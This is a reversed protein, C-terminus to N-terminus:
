NWVRWFHADEEASSYFLIVIVKPGPRLWPPAWYVMKQKLVRNKKHGAGASLSKKWLCVGYNAGAGGGEGDKLGLSSYARRFVVIPLNKSLKQRAGEYRTTFKELKVIFFSLFFMEWFSHTYSYQDFFGPGWGFFSTRHEDTKGNKEGERKWFQLTQSGVKKKPFPPTPPALNILGEVGRSQEEEKRSSTSVMGEEKEKRLQMMMPKEWSRGKKWDSVRGGGTTINERINAPCFYCDICSLSVNKNTAFICCRTFLYILM